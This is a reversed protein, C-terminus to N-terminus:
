VGSWAPRIILWYKVACNKAVPCVVPVSSDPVGRVRPNHFSGSLPTTGMNARAQGEEYLVIIVGKIMRVCLCVYVASVCGGTDRNCNLPCAFLLFGLCTLPARVVRWTWSEWHMRYRWGGRGAGEGPKCLCARGKNILTAIEEPVASTFQWM